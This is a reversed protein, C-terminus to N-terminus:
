PEQYVRGSAPFLLAMRQQDARRTRGAAEGVRAAVRGSEKPRRAWGRRYCGSQKGSWHPHGRQRRAMAEVVESDEKQGDHRGQIWAQVTPTQGHPRLEQWAQVHLRWGQRFPSPLGALGNRCIAFRIAPANCGYIWEPISGHLCLEKARSTVRVAVPGIEHALHQDVFRGPDHAIRRVTRSRFTQISGVSRMQHLASTECRMELDGFNAASTWPVRGSRTRDDPSRKEAIAM